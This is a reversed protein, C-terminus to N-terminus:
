LRKSSVLCPPQHQYHQQQVPHHLQPMITRQSLHGIATPSLKLVVDAAYETIRDTGDPLGVASVDEKLESLTRPTAQAVSNFRPTLSNGTTASQDPVNQPLALTVDITFTNNDPTVGPPAHQSPNVTTSFSFSKISLARETPTCFIDAPAVPKGKGYLFANATINHINYLERNLTQGYNQAEMLASGISHPALQMFFAAKEGFTFFNTHPHLAQLAFDFAQAKASVPATSPPMKLVSLAVARDVRGVNVTIIEPTHSAM